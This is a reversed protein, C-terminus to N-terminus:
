RKRGTKVDRHGTEPSAIGLIDEILTLLVRHRDARRAKDNVGKEIARVYDVVDATVRVNENTLRRDVDKAFKGLASRLAGTHRARPFEHARGVEALAVFLSYFDARNGWRSEDAKLDPFLEQVYALTGDFLKRIRRQNPIGEDVDYDEYTRYYEDVISASGGEPGHIIGILLQSVFDVDGLRRIMARGILGSNLWYENEALTEALLPFPGVYTAHRLEQANLATLYRNLRAFMSRLEQEDSTYLYRLHFKYEYFKVREDSTLDTFRKGAFVSPSGKPDLKDLSFGTFEQEDEEPTSLGIFQLVARIRQQGDVIAHLSSGDPKTTEHVFVEPVPMGMLISEILYCKQRAAWVPKRQYPPRLTITGEKFEKQIWGITQTGAEFRM